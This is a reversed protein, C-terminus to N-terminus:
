SGGVQASVTGHGLVVRGVEQLLDDLSEAWPLGANRIRNRAAGADPGELRVITPVQPPEKQLAVLLLDAFEKLDTIGAFINVAVCALNPYSNLVRLVAVLRDASGKFSGSRIDCFDIPRLGADHLLDILVMSAGAGTTILGVDGQPNLEVFDYGQDARSMRSATEDRGDIVIRVDAAVGDGTASVLLPNIEVLEARSDMFLRFVARSARLLLPILDPPVGAV